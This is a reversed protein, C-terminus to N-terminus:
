AGWCGDCWLREKFLGDNKDFRDGWITFRSVMDNRRQQEAPSNVAVLLCDSKAGTTFRTEPDAGLRGVIQMM